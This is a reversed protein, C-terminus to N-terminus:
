RGGGLALAVGGAAVAALGAAGFLGIVTVAAIAQGVLAVVVRGGDVADRRAGWRAAALAGLGLALGVVVAAGALHLTTGATPTAIVLAAGAVLAGAVLGIGGLVLALALRRVEAGRGAAAVLWAVERDSRAVATTAAALAAPVAIAAAVGLAVAAASGTLEGRDVLLGALLGGVTALGAGALLVARRRRTLTRLHVGVLAAVPGRWGPVRPARELRGAVGVVVVSGAVMSSWALAGAVPGAALWLGAWPLHALAIVLATALAHPAPGGPLARLYSAGPAEFAARVAGASLLLWAGAMVALATPSSRALGVLDDPTLANGQMTVGAVIGLGVWTPVARALVPRALTGLWVTLARAWAAGSTGSTAAVSMGPPRYAIGRGAAM